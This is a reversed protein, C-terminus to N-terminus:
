ELSPLFLSFESGRGVESKVEVKGRLSGLIEKLVALGSGLGPKHKERLPVLQEFPRFITEQESRPIGPGTDRIIAHWYGERSGASVCIRGEDTYKVANGILHRLAIRAFSPDTDVIDGSAMREIVFVLDLGKRGADARFVDISDGVLRIWDVAVVEPIPRESQFRVYELLSEILQLYRHASVSVRSVIREQRESLPDDEAVRLMELLIQLSTLPTRVEHSVLSLFNDKADKLQECERKSRRLARVLAKSERQRGLLDRALVEIDRSQGRIEEELDRRLASFNMLNRVWLLIEESTFPRSVIGQVGAQLLQLKADAELDTTVVLIPLKSRDEPFPIKEALQRLWALPDRLDVVVLDPKLRQMLPIWQDDGSSCVVSYHSQLARSLQRSVELDEDILLVIGRGPDEGSSFPSSRGYRLDGIM